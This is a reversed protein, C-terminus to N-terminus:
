RVSKSNGSILGRNIRRSHQQAVRKIFRADGRKRKLISRAERRSVEMTIQEASKTYSAPWLGENLPYIENTLQVLQLRKKSYHPMIRKKAFAARGFIQNKTLDTLGEPPTLPTVFRQECKHISRHRMGCVGCNVMKGLEPHRQSFSKFKQAEFYQEIAQVYNGSTSLASQTQFIIEIPVEM